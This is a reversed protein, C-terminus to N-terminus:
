TLIALCFVSFRLVVTASRTSAVGELRMTSPNLKALASFWKLEAEGKYITKSFWVYGVAPIPIKAVVNTTCTMVNFRLYCESNEPAKLTIQDSSEFSETEAFDNTVEQTFETAATGTVVGVEFGLTAKVGIGISSSETTTVSTTTSMGTKFALAVEAAAGVMKGLSVKEITVCRPQGICKVPIPALGTGFCASLSSDGTDPNKVGENVLYAEKSKLFNVMHTYGQKRIPSAYPPHVPRPSSQPGYSQPPSWRRAAGGREEPLTGFDLVITRLESSPRDTRAIPM